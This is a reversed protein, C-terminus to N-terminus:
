DPGAALKRQLTRRHLGLRRAALSINGDCDTVVRQIHEWEAQALSPTEASAAVEGSFAALLEDADVPKSLVNVAGLRMAEVASAISGFGTLLVVQLDPDRELLRGMLELGSGGPMRLDLVAHSPSTAEHVALGRTPGDATVVDVGRKRLALAMRERLREDDDVLMLRM